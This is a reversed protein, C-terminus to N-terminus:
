FLIPQETLFITTTQDNGTSVLKWNKFYCFLFDKIWSFENPYLFIFIFVCFNLGNRSKHTDDKKNM